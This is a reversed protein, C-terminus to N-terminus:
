CVQHNLCLLCSPPYLVSVKMIGSSLLMEIIANAQGQNWSSVRALTTLGKMLEVPKITLLQGTSLGACQNGLANITTVDIVDSGM